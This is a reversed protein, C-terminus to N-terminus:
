FRCPPDTPCGAVRRVPNPQYPKFHLSFVQTEGPWYAKSDRGASNAAERRSIQLGGKVIEVPSNGHSSSGFKPFLSHSSGSFASRGFVLTLALVPLTKDSQTDTFFVHGFHVGFSHAVHQFARCFHGFFVCGFRLRVSKDIQYGSPYKSRNKQTKSSAAKM